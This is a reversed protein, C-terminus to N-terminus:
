SDPTKTQSKPRSIYDEWRAGEWLEILRKTRQKLGPDNIAKDFDEWRGLDNFFVKRTRLDLVTRIEGTSVTGILQPRNLSGVVQLQPAKHGGLDSKDIRGTAARVLLEAVDKQGVAGNVDLGPISIVLPIRTQTENLAHGHGLFHDDFLSEGHDGVVAIVTDEYVGLQKLREMISGVAQDAVAISNWYTAQLSEINEVSIDSREIPRDNILSPMKPNSYPFHAAQLNIYFFQPTKWDVEATRINFQQVVRDESLRLSGPDKSAFVRDELASRADFLYNGPDGMGTSTAVAGFSEDQGSIFSLSYGSRRLFDTLLVRDNNSSLTRNLLAKISSVTYGTHSYAYEVSTGFRALRTINPTVPQGQWTKELLDGRASELVVLLIHKGAIPTLIALPDPASGDWKFDGAYGDEDLGNGPFDLAGPFVDPNLNEPDPPFMFLGYGDRDLDTIEDLANSILAYSTKKKLGYRLSSDSNIFAMLVITVLGITMLMWVPSKQNHSRPQTNVLIRKSHKNIWYYGVWYLCLLLIVGVGFIAAENAVYSVAELLSGGGLNKMILFNLTDNFYSLLKFKLALWVGMVSLTIFAFNYATLLPPTNRRRSIWFWPLSAAGILVIDVWISLGIFQVRDLWTLYSHPQLFGGTFLDYKQQLLFLELIQIVIVVVLVAVLQVTYRGARSLPIHRTIRSVAM